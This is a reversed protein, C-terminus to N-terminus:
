NKPQQANWKEELDDSQEKDNQNLAISALQHKNISAVLMLWHERVEKEVKIKDFIWGLVKLVVPLLLKLTAM